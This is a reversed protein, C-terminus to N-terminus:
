EKINLAKKWYKVSKKLDDIILEDFPEFPPYIVELFLFIDKKNNKLINIVKEAQIVGKQNLDETFPWHRSAIRDTQQLHIVLNNDKFEELWAYPNNDEAEGSIRRGHGTDLCLEFPLSSNENLRQYFWKTEKITSPIERECSMPEFLLFKLGEKKALSALYHWHEILEETLSEKREKNKLDKKSFAGLFSGFGSSDMQASMKIAEEYWKLTFKRMEKEPHLLLNFCHPSTGTFVSHIKLSNEKCLKKIKECMRYRFSPPSFLPDLLDTFFQVYKLKLEETVIRVWEEPEAYRNMAFSLNVGLHMKNM